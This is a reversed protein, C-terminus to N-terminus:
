DNKREDFKWEKSYWRASISTDIRQQLEELGSIRRNTASHYIESETDNRPVFYVKRGDEYTSVVFLNSKKRLFSIAASLYSSLLEYNLDSVKEVTIGFTKEFLDTKNVANKKGIHNRMVQMLRLAVTKQTVSDWDIFKGKLQNVIM